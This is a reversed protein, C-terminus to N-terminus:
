DGEIYRVPQWIKCRLKNDAQPYKRRVVGRIVSRILPVVEGEVARVMVLREMGHQLVM